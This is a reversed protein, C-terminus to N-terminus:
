DAVALTLSMFEASVVDVAFEVSVVDIVTESRGRRKPGGLV